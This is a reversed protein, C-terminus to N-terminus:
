LLCSSITLSSFNTKCRATVRNCAVGRWIRLDPGRGDSQAGVEPAFNQHHIRFPIKDHQVDALILPNEFVTFKQDAPFALQNGFNDHAADFFVAANGVDHRTPFEAFHNFAILDAGRM